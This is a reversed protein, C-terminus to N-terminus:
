RRRRQWVPNMPMRGRLHLSGTMREPNEPQRCGTFLTFTRAAGPADPADATCGVGAGSQQQGREATRPAKTGHSRAARSGAARQRERRRRPVSTPSQSVTPGQRAQRRRQRPVPARGRRRRRRGPGRGTGGRRLGAPREIGVGHAGTVATAVILCLVAIATVLGATLAAGTNDAISSVIMGAIGAVCVGIVVRRVVRPSM